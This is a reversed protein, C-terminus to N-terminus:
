NRAELEGSESVVFWGEHERPLNTKGEIGSVFSWKRERVNFYLLKGGGEIICGGSDDRVFREKLLAERIVPPFQFHRLLAKCADADTFEKLMKIEEKTPASKDPSCSATILLCVVLGFRRKMVEETSFFM